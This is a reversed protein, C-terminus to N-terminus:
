KGKLRNWLKYFGFYSVITVMSIPILMGILTFIGGMFEFSFNDKVTYVVDDWMVIQTIVGIMGIIFVLIYKNQRMMKFWNKFSHDGETFDKKM